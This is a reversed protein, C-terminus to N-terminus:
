QGEDEEEAPLGDDLFEVQTLEETLAQKFREFDSESALHFRVCQGDQVVEVQGGDGLKASWFQEDGEFRGTQWVYAYHRRVHVWLRRKGRIRYILARDPLYQDRVDPLEQRFFEIVADNDSSALAAEWDPWKTEAASRRRGRRVAHQTVEPPPYICTCSLYETGADVSLSLRYCRVDVGYGETLWKATVLVEYEFDEALLVIRQSGNLEGIDEDLFEQIEEEAAEEAGNTLRAREAIVREAEWEAVMSAYALTQLLQLKDTGRKLEVVVATAQKDVALLDIRDEVFDTPRVEEGILLLPEGMELFFAEPSNRIMRQIDSRELLGADASLKEELRKLSRGQRDIRLM